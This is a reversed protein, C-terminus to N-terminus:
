GLFYGLGAGIATGWPGFMSGAMGGGLAGTLRSGGGSQSQSTTGGLAAGNALLGLYDSINQYPANAYNQAQNQYMNGANLTTNGQVLSGQMLGPISALGGLQGRQVLEQMGQGINAANANGQLATGYLSSGLSGLNGFTNSAQGLQGALGLGLQGANSVANLGQAYASNGMNATIDGVTDLYGRSAIGQAIGQRSGGLQGSQIAGSQISPLVNEQFNQTVPRIASQVASQFFPNNAPDGANNLFNISGTTGAAGSMGIQGQQQGLNVLNGISNQLSTSGLDNANAAIGMNSQAGRAMNFYADDLMQQYNNNQGLLNRATFYGVNNLGTGLEAGSGMQALGIGQLYNMPAVRNNPDQGFVNSAQSYAGLLYPQVGKWPDAKQVTTNSGGGGGGSM